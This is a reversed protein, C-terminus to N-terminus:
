QLAHAGSCLSLILLQPVPKTAGHCTSVEWPGPILGVDGANAPLNKVVLGGPFDGCGVKQLSLIWMSYATLHKWSFCVKSTLPGSERVMSTWLFNM